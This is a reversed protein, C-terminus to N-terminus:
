AWWARGVRWLWWGVLLWVAVVAAAAMWSTPKEELAAAQARARCEEMM